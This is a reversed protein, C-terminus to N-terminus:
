LGHHLMLAETEGALAELAARQEDLKSKLLLVDKLKARRHKGVYRYPLDGVEMRHVVLPRSMGLIIAADNPSIEQDDALVAVREGKALHELIVGILGAADPPLQVSEPEGAARLIRVEVMDGKGVKPFAGAKKRDLSSLEVFQLVNTTM